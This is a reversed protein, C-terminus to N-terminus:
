CTGEKKICLIVWVLVVLSLVGIACLVYECSCNVNFSYVNLIVNLDLICWKDFHSETLLDIWEIKLNRSVNGKKAVFKNNKFFKLNENM